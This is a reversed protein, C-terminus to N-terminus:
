GVPVKMWYIQQRDGRVRLDELMPGLDPKAVGRFLSPKRNNVQIEIRKRFDILKPSVWLDFAALGKTTFKLLNSAKSSTMEISAPRLNKGMPEVAEPATTRGPQFAQAVFGFFRQDTDRASVVEFKKPYPERRRHDMWDFVARAEEPFTEMGRKIYEVYAVDWAKLAILPKLIQGFVVENSAPALDGEVVYLATYDAHPMYRNVYKFPLGSVVVIGAVLDPHALGFDWAMNAGALQGGVFVRDSDIAYRRRADRLALEAAAHESGSYRYEEKQDKVRYEPAIM